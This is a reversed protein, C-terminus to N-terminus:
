SRGRRRGFALLAAAFLGAFGLSASAPSTSCGSSSSPAAVSGGASATSAAASSSSATSAAAGGAGSGATASSTSGAPDVAGADPDAGVVPGVQTWADPCTTAYPSGDKCALLAVDPLHYVAEFTKGEDTSLGLTFGDKFEDGCAYIGAKKWKLCRAHLKLLAAPAFAFDKTSAVLIGEQPGGLAVKSGDPSLAFGLMEGLTSHILTWTKAGDDSVFLQDSPSSDIRVYVRDPNTPDVAAIYASGGGMWPISYRTWTQGRDDSREVVPSLMPGAVGSLYVRTPASPAVEVTEAILDSPADVGAQSWHAGNDLTELLAVHFGGDLATATVAVAHAPTIPEVATDIVYQKDAAGPVMAWSCGRDHTVSLGASSGALISGDGTVALAPDEQNPYGVIGECIWGWTKGGDASELMGFTAELVLHKEDVPDVVMQVAAPFRGNAFASSSCLVAAVVFSAKKFPSMRGFTLPVRGGESM